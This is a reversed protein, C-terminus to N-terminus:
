GHHLLSSSPRVALAPPLRDEAFGNGQCGDVTEVPERDAIERGTQAHALAADVGVEAGLLVELERGHVFGLPDESGLDDRRRESGLRPETLQEGHAVGVEVMKRAPRKGAPTEEGPGDQLHPGPWSGDLFPDRCELAAERCQDATEDDCRDVLVAQGGILVWLCEGELEVADDKGGVGAEDQLSSGCTSSIGLFRSRRRSPIGASAGGSCGFPAGM